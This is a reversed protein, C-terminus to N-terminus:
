QGYMAPYMRLLDFRHLLPDLYKGKDTEGPFGIDRERQIAWQLAETRIELFSKHHHKKWWKRLGDQTFRRGGCYQSLYGRYVHDEGDSGKRSAYKSGNYGVVQAEICMFCVDGVSYSVLTTNQSSFYTEWSLSYEKENVSDILM